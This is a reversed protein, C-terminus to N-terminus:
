ADLPNRGDWDADFAVLAGVTWAQVRNAAAVAEVVGDETVAYLEPALGLRQVATRVGQRLREAADLQGHARLGGWGLWSDFPWIAGRHYAHPWFVPSAASLTRLGYGSWVDPRLLRAVVADALDGRVAGAWLLWGLQFGAGLVPRDGAEWAMVDPTLREALASTTSALLELWYEARGPDIQALARLAAVAM